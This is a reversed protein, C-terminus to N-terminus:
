SESNLAKEEFNQRNSLTVTAAPEPSFSFPQPVLRTLKRGIVKEM